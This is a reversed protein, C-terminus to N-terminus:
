LPPSQFQPHIAHYSQRPFADAPVAPSVIVSCPIELHPAAPKDPHLDHYQKKLFPQFWRGFREHLAPIKWDDCTINRRCSTVGCCCNVSFRHKNDPNSYLVFAYDYTIEEGAAIDRLAAIQLQDFFGCNPECSHNIFFQPMRELEETNSPCFSFHESIDMGFEEGFEDIANHTPIDVVPGGMVMVIEGAKIPAIALVGRQPPIILSQGVSIAPTMWSFPKIQM